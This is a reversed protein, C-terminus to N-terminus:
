DGEGQLFWGFGLLEDVEVQAASVAGEPFRIRLTVAVAGGRGVAGLEEDVVGGRKAYGYLTDKGDPSILRYSVWEGEDKFASGYFRVAECLVRVLVPETPKEKLIEGWGLESWGVWSEWDIKLGEGGETFYMRRKEGDGTLVMVAVFGEGYVVGANPSFGTFGLPSIVGEPFERQLKAAVDLPDDVVALVEEVSSAELFRRVMPAVEALLEEEGGGFVEGAVGEEGGSGELLLSPVELVERGVDSAVVVVEGPVPGTSRLFLFVGGAILAFCFCWVVVTRVLGVWDVGGGGKAGESGGGNLDKVRRQRRMPPKKDAVPGAAFSVKQIPAMLPAGVEGERPLRLMMRCSPCVIGVGDHDGPVRFVFRCDPCVFAGWRRPAERRM